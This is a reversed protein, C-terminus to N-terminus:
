PRQAPTSRGDVDLDVLAAGPVLDLRASVASLASAPELYRNVLSRMVVANPGTGYAEEPLAEISRVLHDVDPRAGGRGTGLAAKEGDTPPADCGGAGPQRA